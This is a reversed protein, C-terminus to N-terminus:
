SSGQGLHQGRSVFNVGSILEGPLFTTIFMYSVHNQTLLQIITDWGPHAPDMAAM